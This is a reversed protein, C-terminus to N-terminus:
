NDGNLMAVVEECSVDVSRSSGVLRVLCQKDRFDFEEVVEVMCPNFWIGSILILTCM